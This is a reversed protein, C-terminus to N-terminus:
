RVRRVRGAQIDRLSVRLQLLVDDVVREKRKLRLYEGSPICVSKVAM